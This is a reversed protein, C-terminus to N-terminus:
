ILKKWSKGGINLLGSIDVGKDHSAVGALAGHSNSEQMPETNEFVDVGGFGTAELLKRRKERDNEWKQKLSREEELRSENTTQTNVNQQKHVNVSETILPRTGKLIESIINSLIGEEILSELICEKVIPKIIKKLDSKKM